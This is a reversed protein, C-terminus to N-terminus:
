HFLSVLHHKCVIDIMMMHATEMQTNNEFPTQQKAQTRM